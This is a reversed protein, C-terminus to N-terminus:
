PTRTLTPSTLAGRAAAVFARIKASDKTGATEIGSSVDVGWPRVRRVADAVNDPTLGGSLLVPFRAAVASALGWDVQRGTGGYQGAVHSELLCRGGSAALAPHERELEAIVSEASRGAPVRLARIVPRRIQPIDSWPEDGSLQVLDLGCGEALQNIREPKENVFVGVLKPPLATAGRAAAAIATAAEPTVTRTSQLAFVMGILDAGAAAAIAAHDPTSIGCIKVTIV